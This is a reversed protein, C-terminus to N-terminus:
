SSFVVLVVITIITLRKGDKIKEEKGGGHIIWTDILRWFFVAILLFVVVVAFSNIFGVLYDVLSAFDTVRNM